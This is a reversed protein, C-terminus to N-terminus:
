RKKGGKKGGRMTFPFHGGAGAAPHMESKRRAPGGMPTTLAFCLPSSVFHGMVGSARGDPKPWKTEQGRKESWADYFHFAGSHRLAARGVRYGSTRRRATM